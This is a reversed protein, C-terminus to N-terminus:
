SKKITLRELFRAFRVIPSEEDKSISYVLITVMGANKGALIDSLPRDGVMATERPEIGLDRCARMIVETDPKKAKYYIPIDTQSKAKKIYNYKTNNTIIALKFNTSLDKLYQLTKFSFKGSKSKMTTSDLDFFLARVGIRDLEMIDIDYISNINFDPEIPLKLGFM